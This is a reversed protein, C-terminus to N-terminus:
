YNSHTFAQPTGYEQFCGLYTPENIRVYTQGYPSTVPNYYPRVIMPSSRVPCDSILTNVYDPIVYHNIGIPGCKNDEEYNTKFNHENFQREGVNHNIYLSLNWNNDFPERTNYQMIQLGNHFAFIGESPM